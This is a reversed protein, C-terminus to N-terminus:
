RFSKFFEIARRMEEDVASMHDGPVEIAEVDKNAAKALRALDNTTRKFFGEMSGFYMRTPIQFSTPFSIPSRIASESDNFIPPVAQSKPIWTKQDPSGSFSAAARFPSPTMALLMTMTGGVSHGAAFIRKPDVDPRAKVAEAAALGDDIEDLFLTVRGPQNNEGRLIPLFTVFGADRFAQVQQWDDAGFAFGGHFFVVAPRDHASGQVPSAFGTLALQGSNFTVRDANRVMMVPGGPQLPPLPPIHTKFAKRASAYDKPPPSTSDKSEHGCGVIYMLALTMGIRDSNRMFYMNTRKVAIRIPSSFAM